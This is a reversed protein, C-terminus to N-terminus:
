LIPNIKMGPRVNILAKTVYRNETTVGSIPEGDIKVSVGEGCNGLCFAPRLTIQEELQNERILNEFITKVEYSGKVHCSSGICVQIMM